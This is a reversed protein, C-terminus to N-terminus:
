RYRKKSVAVGIQHEMGHKKVLHAMYERAAGCDNPVRPGLTIKSASLFLEKIKAGIVYRRVIKGSVDYKIDEQPPMVKITRWENEDEYARSKMLYRHGDLVRHLMGTISKATVERDETPARDITERGISLLKRVREAVQRDEAQEGSKRRGGRYRVRYMGDPMAGLKLSCGEGNNGYLRWFVLDDEINKDNTSFSWGYTSGAQARSEETEPNYKRLLLSIERDLTRWEPPMIKGEEPDNASEYNYMRFVPCEEKESDFIKLLNEWSTYHALGVGRAPLSDDYLVLTRVPAALREGAVRFLGHAAIEQLTEFLVKWSKESDM